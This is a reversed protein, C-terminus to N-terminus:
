VKILFKSAEIVTDTLLQKDEAPIDFRIVNLNKFTGGDKIYPAKDGIYKLKPHQMLEPMAKLIDNSYPMFVILEAEDCDCICANSVLQWYYKDGYIHADIPMSTVAHVFGERIAKISDNGSLGATIGSVLEFYSSRTFPCKYDIVIKKGNEHRFGDPSGAWFEGYVPHSYTQDSTLEVDIGLMDFVKQEWFKGWETEQSEASNDCPLGLSREINKKYILTKAPSGFGKGTRDKKMLDSINSSTFRGLRNENKNIDNM